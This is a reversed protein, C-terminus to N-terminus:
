RAGGDLEALREAVVSQRVPRLLEALRTRQEDSLPPREALIKDVYAAIPDHPEADAPRLLVAEVADADLKLLRPGCRFAKLEGTKIKRRITKDSLGYRQCVDRVTILKAPM